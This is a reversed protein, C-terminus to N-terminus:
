GIKSVPDERMTQKQASTLLKHVQIDNYKICNIQNSNVNSSKKSFNEIM